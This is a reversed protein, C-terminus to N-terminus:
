VGDNVRLADTNSVVTKVTLATPKPEAKAPKSASTRVEVEFEISPNSSM